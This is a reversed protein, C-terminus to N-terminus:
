KERRTWKNNSFFLQLDFFFLLLSFFNALHVSDQFNERCTNGMPKKFQQQNSNNSQQLYTRRVRNKLYNTIMGM